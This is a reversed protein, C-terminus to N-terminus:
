WSAKSRCIWPGNLYTYIPDFEQPLVYENENIVIMIFGFIMLPNFQSKKKKAIRKAVFNIMQDIFFM